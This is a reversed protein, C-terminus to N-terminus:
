AWLKLVPHHELVLKDVTEPSKTYYTDAIEGSSSIKWRLFIHAALVPEMKLQPLGAFTDRITEALYRRFSHWNKHYQNEVGAKKCIRKFMAFMYLKNHPTDFDCAKLHPVLEKALVQGRKEGGKETDVFISMGNYDIDGNRVRWLEGARLGYVSALCLYATEDTTLKGSRAAIVMSKIEGATISPKTKDSEDVRPMDRKGWDWVPARTNIAKLIKATASPDDPNIQGIVEEREVEHATRAADYVRKVAGMAFRVTTPAYGEKEIKKKFSTALAGDWKSVPIIETYKLFKDMWFTQVNVTDHSSNGLSKLRQARIAKTTVM